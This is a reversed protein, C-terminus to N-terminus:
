YTGPKAADGSKVKEAAKQVEPTSGTAPESERKPPAGILGASYSPPDSAPFTDKLQRDLKKEEAKTPKDTSLHDTKVNRGRISVWQLRRM